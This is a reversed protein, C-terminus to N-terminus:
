FSSASVCVRYNLSNAGRGLRGKDPLHPAGRGLRGTRSALIAEAQGGIAWRRPHSSRRQGASGDPFHPAGRGARQAIKWTHLSLREAPTGLLESSVAVMSFPGHHRHRNQRFSFPSIHPFSLSIRNNSRRRRRRKLSPHRRAEMCCESSLASSDTILAAPPRSSPESFSHPWPHCKRWAPFDMLTREKDKFLCDLWAELCRQCLCM